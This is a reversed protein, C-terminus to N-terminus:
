GKKVATTKLGAPNSGHDPETLGFCGIKEGRAMAPLWRTKQAEDGFHHIAYMALSGQVSVFSRIASDGRELEQLALGYAVAGLGACEYGKLNAGLLGMEAIGPVLEKPFREERACSAIIPLVRRDVFERVTDRVMREEDSLLEEIAYFDVGQFRAM